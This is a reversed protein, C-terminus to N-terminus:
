LTDMGNTNIDEMYDLPIGQIFITELQTFVEKKEFCFVVTMDFVDRKKFQELTAHILVKVIKTRSSELLPDSLKLVITSKKHTFMDSLFDQMAKSTKEKEKHTVEKSWKPIPL